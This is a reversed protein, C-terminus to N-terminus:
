GEILLYGAGCFWSSAALAEYFRRRWSDQRTITSALGAYHANIAAPGKEDGLEILSERIEVLDAVAYEAFRDYLGCSVMLEHLRARMTGTISGDISYEPAVKTGQPVECTLWGSPASDFYPHTPVVGTTAANRTKKSLNCPYCSPILNRTHVALGPYRDKPLFHDLTHIDPRGCYPCLRTATILQDYIVRGPTGVFKAEYLDVFDDKTAQGLINHPLIAQLQESEGYSDYLDALMEVSHESRELRTRRSQTPTRAYGQYCFRFVELQGHLPPNLRIM